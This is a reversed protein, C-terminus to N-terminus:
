LKRAFRWWPDLWSSCKPTGFKLLSRQDVGSLLQMETCKFSVHFEGSKNTQKENPCGEFLPVIIVGATEENREALAPWPSLHPPLLLWAWPGPPPSLPLPGLRSRPCHFSSGLCPLRGCTSAPIPKTAAGDGLKAELGTPLKWILRVGKIWPCAGLAAELVGTDGIPSCWHLSPVNFAYLIGEDEDWWSGGRAFSTTEQNGWSKMPKGWQVTIVNARRQCQTPM